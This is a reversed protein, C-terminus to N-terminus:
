KRNGLREKSMEPNVSTKSEMAIAAAEMGYEATTQMDYGKVFGSLIAASFADGAGVARVISLNEKPRLTGTQKGDTYFVGGGSLTMFLRKVGQEMFWAGAAEMESGSLISLGSLSEAEMRNPKITHFNGVLDKASEAQAQSVPDLFLPITGFAKVAYALVEASINADLGVIKCDSFAKVADDIVETSICKMVDVNYLALELDKLLNLVAMSVATNEAALLRVNKVDVGLAELERVVGRGAFDDGAVSAFSVREGMRALNEAINRGAGGYSMSITGANSDHMALQGYPNGEIEAVIGGIIGIKSM